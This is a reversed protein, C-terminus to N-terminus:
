GKSKRPDAGYTRKDQIKGFMSKIILESKEKLLKLGHNCMVVAESVADVKFPYWGEQFVTGDPLHTMVKWGLAGYGVPLVERIVRKNIKKTVVKKTTAM